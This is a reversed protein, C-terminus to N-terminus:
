ERIGCSLFSLFSCIFFITTDTGALVGQNRIEIIPYTGLVTSKVICGTCFCIKSGKRLM